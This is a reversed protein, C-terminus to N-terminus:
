LWLDGPRQGLLIVPPPHDVPRHLGNRPDVQLNLGAPHEGEETGVPRALRRGHFDQLSEAVPAPTLDRHQTLVRGVSATLPPVYRHGAAPTRAQARALRLPTCTARRRSSVASASSGRSGRARRDRRGDWSSTRDVRRLGVDCAQPPAQGRRRDPATTGPLASSPNQDRPLAPGGPLNDRPQTIEPLRDEQRGVVHLFGFKECVPDRHDGFPLDHGFSIRGADALPGGHREGDTERHRCVQPGGFQRQCDGRRHDGARVASHFCFRSCWQRNEGVKRCLRARMM